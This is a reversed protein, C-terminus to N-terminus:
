SAAEKIRSLIPNPQGPAPAKSPPRSKTEEHPSGTTERLVIPDRTSEILLESTLGLLILHRQGNYAVVVLRRKPDLALSSVLHLSKKDTRRSRKPGFVPTKQLGWALGGILLLVLGLGTLYQSYVEFPLANM